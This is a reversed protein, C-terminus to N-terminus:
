DDHEEDDESEEEDDSSDEDESDDEDYEDGILDFAKSKEIMDESVEM